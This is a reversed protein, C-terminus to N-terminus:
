KLAEWDDPDIAPENPDEYYTIMGRLSKLIDEDSEKKYPIVEVVPKGAHTIVLTQKDKEVDRLYELAKAKFQAKSVQLQM